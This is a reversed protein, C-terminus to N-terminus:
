AAEGESPDKSSKLTEDIRAYHTDIEEETFDPRKALTILSELPPEQTHQPTEHNIVRSEVENYIPPQPPLSQTESISPQTPPATPNAKELKHHWKLLMYTIDDQQPMDGM